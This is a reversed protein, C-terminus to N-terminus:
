KDPNKKGQLLKYTSEHPHNPDYPLKQKLKKPGRPHKKLTRLDVHLAVQRLWQAFQPPSCTALFDWGLAEGFLILTQFTSSIDHAIYYSSVEKSVPKEYASDLSALMVSFINYAVLALCFGFLAARPYALTNIESEFHKEIHQFATELTWRKRYLHAVTQADVTPPLNTILDIHMDGDRTPESLEIRIRRYGRGGIEIPQELIRQGDETIAVQSLSAQELFPLKGHLRLIPYAQQQHIGLLFALTCFNRDAIWLQGAPVTPIVAELLSREQAHGDECPFVDVILRREPDLVVLSKGPLAAARLERHVKLRKESAELCNGDLIRIPYGPLWPESPAGLSDLVNSLDSAIERVMASSVSTEVGNVKDYLATISVPITPKLKQYAAHASPHIRLVVHLLLHCATSFLLNRTYQDRSNKDFIQNLRDASLCRELLGRLLCSIPMKECFLELMAHCM